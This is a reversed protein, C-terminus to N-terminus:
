SAALTDFPRQGDVHLPLSLRRAAEDTRAASGALTPDGATSSDWQLLPLSSNERRGVSNLSIISDIATFQAGTSSSRASTASTDNSALLGVTDPLTTPCRAQKISRFLTSNARPTILPSRYAAAPIYIPWKTVWHPPSPFRDGHFRDLAQCIVGRTVSHVCDATSMLTRNVVITCRRPARPRPRFHSAKTTQKSM